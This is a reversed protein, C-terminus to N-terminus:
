ENESDTSHDSHMAALLSREIQLAETFLATTRARFGPTVEDHQRLPTHSNRITRTRLAHRFRSFISSRSDDLVFCFLITDAVQKFLSICPTSVLCALAASTYCVMAPDTATVHAHTRPNTNPNLTVYMIVLYTTGACVTAITGVGGLTLIWTASNVLAHAVPRDDFKQRAIQSSDHFGLGESCVAFYAGWSYRRLHGEYCCVCCWLM